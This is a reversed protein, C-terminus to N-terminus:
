IGKRRLKNFLDDATFLNSFGPGTTSLRNPLCYDLESDSDAGMWESIGNWIADWSTTPLIRGRGLNLPGAPTIDVPYEGLIQGGDM